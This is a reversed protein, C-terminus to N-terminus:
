VDENNTTANANNLNVYSIYLIDLLSLDINQFTM